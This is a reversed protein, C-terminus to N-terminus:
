HPPCFEAPTWSVRSFAVRDQRAEGDRFSLLFAAEKAHLQPVFSVPNMKDGRLWNGKHPVTPGSHPITTEAMADNSLILYGTDRNRVVGRVFSFLDTWHAM